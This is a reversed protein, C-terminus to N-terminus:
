SLRRAIEYFFQGCSKKEVVVRSPLPSMLFSDHIAASFAEVDHDSAGFATAFVKDPGVDYLSRRLIEMNQKHFGFGLFVVTQAENMVSTIRNQIESDTLESFTRINPVVNAIDGHFETDLFKTSQQFSSLYDKPTLEGLYGYPRIVNLNQHLDASSGAVSGFHRRLMIDLYQDLTRGYNFNIVTLPAFISRINSAKVGYILTRFFTEYWSNKATSENVSLDHYQGFFLTSEAEARKIEDAIALKALLSIDVDERFDVYSDISGFGEIENSIQRALGEMRDFLNNQGAKSLLLNMSASSLGHTGRSLRKSIRSALESGVPLGAEASAGAGLIIVTNSSFM